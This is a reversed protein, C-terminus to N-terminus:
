SSSISEEKEEITLLEEVKQEYDEELQMLEDALITIGIKEYCSPDALCKKKEDIQHELMEIEAPLKELAIKEKFTLKVTKQKVREVPKDKISEKEM